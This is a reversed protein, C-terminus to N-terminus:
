TRSNRNSLRCFKLLFALFFLGEISAGKTSCNCGSSPEGPLEGYTFCDFIEGPRDASGTVQKACASFYPGNIDVRVYNNVKLSYFITYPNLGPEPLWGFNAADIPEGQTLCEERIDYLGAGGGGTVLFPLGNDAMGRMYHHDHGSFLYDVGQELMQDRWHRL